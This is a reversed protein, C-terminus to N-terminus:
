KDLEIKHEALTEYFFTLFSELEKGANQYKIRHRLEEALGWLAGYLDRAQNALEYDDKEEPLNFTITAKPM